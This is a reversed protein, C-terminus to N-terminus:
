EGWPDSSKKIRPPASTRDTAEGHHIMGARDMTFELRESSGDRFEARCQFTAGEVGIPIADDCRMVRVGPNVRLLDAGLVDGRAITPRQAVYLAAAGVGAIFAVVLLSKGVPENYGIEAVGPETVSSRLGFSCDFRRFVRNAVSASMTM